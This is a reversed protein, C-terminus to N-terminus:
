IIFRQKQVGSICTQKFITCCTSYRALSVDLCADKTRAVSKGAQAKRCKSIRRCSGAENGYLCLAILDVTQCDRTMPALHQRPLFQCGNNAMRQLFDRLGKMCVRSVLNVRLTIDLEKALWSRIM